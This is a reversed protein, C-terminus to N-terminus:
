GRKNMKDLVKKLVRKSDDIKARLGRLLFWLCVKRSSIRLLRLGAKASSIVPIIFFWSFLGFYIKEILFNMTM